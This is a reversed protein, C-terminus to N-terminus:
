GSALLIAKWCKPDAQCSVVIYPNWFSNSFTLKLSNNHYVARFRLPDCLENMHDMNDPYLLFESISFPTMPLNNAITQVM